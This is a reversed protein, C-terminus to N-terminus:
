GFREEAIHNAVTNTALGQSEARRYIELLTDSIKEIHDRLGKDSSAISQHFIDIIGGANLVYDPAYLIGKDVLLQGYEEKALQNNAAGAIVKVKLKAINEVNLIAGMACPAFVDVDADYIYEPKVAIASFERVAKEINEIQM